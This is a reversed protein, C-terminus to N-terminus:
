QDEVASVLGAGYAMLQDRLATQAGGIEGAEICKFLAEHGSIRAELDYASIPARSQRLAELLRVYNYLRTLMDATLLKAPLSGIRAHFDILATLAAYAAGNQAQQRASVILQRLEALHAKPMAAPRLVPLAATARPQLLDTRPSSAKLSWRLALPEIAVLLLFIEAVEEQTFTRVYVGRRAQKVVWGDSELLRLADRVTNQSVDMTHALTLEVLRDGCVYDGRLIAARLIAAVTQALTNNSM